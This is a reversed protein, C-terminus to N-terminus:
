PSAKSVVVRTLVGKEITPTDWNQISIRLFMEDPTRWQDPNFATSVPNTGTTNIIPNDPFDVSFQDRDMEIKVKVPFKLSVFNGALVERGSEPHTEADVAKKLFVKFWGTNEAPIHNIMIAVSDESSEWYNVDAPLTLLRIWCVTIVDPNSTAIEDIDVKFVHNTKGIDFSKITQIEAADWARNGPKLVAAGDVVEVDGTAIWNADLKSPSSFDTTDSDGVEAADSRFPCHALCIILAITPAISKPNKM